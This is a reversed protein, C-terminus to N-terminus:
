SEDMVDGVFLAEYHRILRETCYAQRNFAVPSPSCLHRLVTAALRDIEGSGPSVLWERGIYEGIAGVDSSVVPVDSALAELITLPAGEYSSTVLLLDTSNLVAHIDDRSPIFRVNAVIGLRKAIQQSQEVLKGGGIMYFYVQDLQEVLKGAVKLFLDPRKQRTFRGIFGILPIHRPVNIEERFADRLVDDRKFRTVDVGNKIVVFKTLDIAYYRRLYSLLHNSIVISKDIFPHVFRNASIDPYGGRFCYPELVHLSDIIRIRPFDCKLRAINAYLWLSHTIYILNIDNDKLYCAFCDYRQSVPIQWLRLLEGFREEFKNALSSALNCNNDVSTECIHVLFRGSLGNLIDFNVKTVGSVDLFCTVYLLNM